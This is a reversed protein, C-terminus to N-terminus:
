LPDSSDTSSSATAPARPKKYPVEPKGERHAAFRAAMFFYDSLRNLYKFADQDVDGHELLVVM